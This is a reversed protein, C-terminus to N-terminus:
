SFTSMPTAQYAVPADLLTMGQEEIDQTAFRVAQTDYGALLQAGFRGENAFGFAVMLARSRMLVAAASVAYDSPKTVSTRRISVLNLTGAVSRADRAPAVLARGIYSAITQSGDDSTTGIFWNHIWSALDRHCRAIPDRAIFVDPFTSQREVLLHTAVSTPKVEFKKKDGKEPLTIEALQLTTVASLQQLAFVKSAYVRHQFVVHGLTPVVSPPADKGEAKKVPTISKDEVNVYIALMPNRTVRESAAVNLRADAVVIRAGSLDELQGQTIWPMKKPVIYASVQAGGNNSLYRPVLADAAYRVDDYDAYARFIHRGIPASTYHRRTVDEIMSIPQFAKVVSRVHALTQNVESSGAQLAITHAERNTYREVAVSQDDTGLRDLVGLAYTRRGDAPRNVTTFGFRGGAEALPRPPFGRWALYSRIVKWSECLRTLEGADIKQPLAGASKIALQILTYDDWVAKLIDHCEKPIASLHTDRNVLAKLVSLLLGFDDTTSTVGDLATLVDNMVVCFDKVIQIMNKADEPSRDRTAGGLSSLGNLTTMTEYAARAQAYHFVTPHTSRRHSVFTLPSGLRALQAGPNIDVTDDKGKDWEPRRPVHMDFMEGLGKYLDLHVNSHRVVAALVGLFMMRGGFALQGDTVTTLNADLLASSDIVIKPSPQFRWRASQNTVTYIINEVPSIEVGDKWVTKGEPTSEHTPWKVVQRIYEIDAKPLMAESVIATISYVLEATSRSSVTMPTYGVASASPIKFEITEGSLKQADDAGSALVLDASSTAIVATLGIKTLIKRSM